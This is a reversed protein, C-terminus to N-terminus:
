PERGMYWEMLGRTYTIVENPSATKEIYDLGNLIDRATAEAGLQDYTKPPPIFPALADQMIPHIAM